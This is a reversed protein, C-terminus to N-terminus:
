TTFNKLYEIASELIEIDERSYGLLTNCKNCLLGRVKGTVHNHDIHLLCIGYQNTRTEPKHCIKCLGKQEDYMKKYDELTIGYKSKIFYKKNEEPTRNKKQIHYYCSKCYSYLGDPRTSDKSFEEISKEAECRICVKLLKEVM